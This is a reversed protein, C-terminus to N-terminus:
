KNDKWNGTQELAYAARYIIAEQFHGGVISMGVPFDDIMGVPVTLAPNGTINFPGTNRGMGM